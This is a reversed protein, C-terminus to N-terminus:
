GYFKEIQSLYEDTSGYDLPGPAEVEGEGKENFVVDGWNPEQSVLRVMMCMHEYMKAKAKRLESSEDPAKQELEPMILQNLYVPARCMPCFARGNKQLESFIDFVKFACGKCMPTRAQINNKPQRPAEYGDLKKCLDILIPEFPRPEAPTLALFVVPPLKADGRVRWELQLQDRGATYFGLYRRGKEGFELEPIQQREYLLELPPPPQQPDRNPIKFEAFFYHAAQQVRIVVQRRTPDLKQGMPVLKAAKQFVLPLHVEDIEPHHGLDPESINMMRQHQDGAASPDRAMRHQYMEGPSNAYNVPIQVGPMPMKPANRRGKGTQQGAWRPMVGQARGQAGNRPVGPPMSM